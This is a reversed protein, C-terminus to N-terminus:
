ALYVSQSHLTTSAAEAESEAVSKTLKERREILQGSWPNVGVGLYPWVNVSVGSPLSRTKPPHVIGLSVM